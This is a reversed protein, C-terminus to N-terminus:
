TAAHKEYTTRVCVRSSHTGGASSVSPEVLDRVGVVVDFCQRFRFVDFVSAVM